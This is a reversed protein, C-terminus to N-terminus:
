RAAEQACIHATEVIFECLENADFGGRLLQKVTCRFQVAAQKVKDHAYIDPLLEKKVVSAREGAQVRREFEESVGRAECAYMLDRFARLKTPSIDFAAAAKRISM